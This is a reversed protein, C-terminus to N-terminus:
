IDALVWGFMAFKVGFCNILQVAPVFELKLFLWGSFTTKFNPEPPEPTYSGPVIRLMPKITPICIQNFNSHIQYHIPVIHIWFLNCTCKEYKGAFM